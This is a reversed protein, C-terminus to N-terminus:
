ARRGGIERRMVVRRAPELGRLAEEDVLERLEGSLEDPELGRFGARTYFPANWPIERFTTLTLSAHGADRAWDCVAEILARGIGRQGHDPHVDIEELHPGGELQEVLAFGVPEGVADRALWLLGEEMGERFEEPATSDSLVGDAVTWGAFLRSAALEIAPLKPLDEPRAAGITYSADM